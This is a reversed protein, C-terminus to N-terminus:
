YYFNNLNGTGKYKHEFSMDQRNIEKQLSKENSKHKFDHKIAYDFEGLSNVSFSINANYYCAIFNGFEAIDKEEDFLLNIDFAGYAKYIAWFFSLYENAISCAFSVTQKNSETIYYFNINDEQEIRNKATNNKVNITFFDSLKSHSQSNYITADTYEEILKLWIHFLKVRIFRHLKTNKYDKTYWTDLFVDGAPLVNYEERNKHIYSQINISCGMGASVAHVWHRCNYVLALTHFFELKDESPFGLVWNTHNRIGARDGDRLNQEIESINIKKKMDNLVKLAGSEVGYSLTFCGSQKIKEIFEFDMRGDCRAYGQWKIGLNEEIISNVLTRFEKLNGNVVSDIFWFYSINYKRIQDKMEEIILHATRYRYKWFWTESCFACQAICGRSTEISVGKPHTYLRFDYGDYDPSPISNIDLSSRLEGVSKPRLDIDSKYSKLLDLLVKEGEGIVVYDIYKLPSFSSSFCEPGGCIILREPHKTKIQEIMYYSSEINTIYLSFGIVDPNYKLIEEIESDLLEKIKPFLTESFYKPYWYYYKEGSWYDVNTIEKLYRYSKINVDHVNVTYGERRLVATLRSINYPPFYVGWAPCVVLSIKDARLMENKM